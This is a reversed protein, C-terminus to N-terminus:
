LRDLYIASCCVSNYYKFLKCYTWEFTQCWYPNEKLYNMTKNMVAANFQDFTINLVNIINFFIDIEFLHQGKPSEIRRHIKFLILRILKWFFMLCCSQKWYQYYDYFNRSCYILMNNHNRFIMHCQLSSYHHQFYLQADCFYIVPKVFIWM